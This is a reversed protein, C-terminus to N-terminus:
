RPYKAREMMEDIAALVEKSLEAGAEDYDDNGIRLEWRAGRASEEPSPWDGALSPPIALSYDNLLKGYIRRNLWITEEATRLIIYDDEGLSPAMTIPHTTRWDIHLMPRLPGTSIAIHKGGPTASCSLPKPMAALAEVVGNLNMSIGNLHFALQQKPPRLYSGRLIAIVATAVQMDEASDTEM